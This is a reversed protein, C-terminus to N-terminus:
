LTVMTSWLVGLFVFWHSREFAQLSSFHKDDRTEVDENTFDRNEHILAMIYLDIKRIAWIGYMPLALAVLLCFGQPAHLQV